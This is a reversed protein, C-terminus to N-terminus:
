HFKDPCDRDDFEQYGEHDKFIKDLLTGSIQTSNETNDFLVVQKEGEDTKKQDGYSISALDIKWLGNEYAEKNVDIELGHKDDKIQSSDIEGFRILGKM